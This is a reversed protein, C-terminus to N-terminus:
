EAIEEALRFTEVVEGHTTRADDNWDIVVDACYRGQEDDDDADVVEWAVCALASEEVDAEHGLDRCARRIGASACYEVAEPSKDSVTKGEDDRAWFGQCWGKEILTRARVLVDTTPYPTMCAQAPERNSTM